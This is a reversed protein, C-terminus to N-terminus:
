SSAEEIGTDTWDSDDQRFLAITGTYTGTGSLSFTTSSLDVLSTPTANETSSTGDVANNIASSTNRSSINYPVNVGPSYATGSSQVFDVTGTIEQFSNLEGTDASATGLANFIYNAADIRWTHFVLEATQGDSSVGQGTDTYTMEGQQHFSMNSTSAAM